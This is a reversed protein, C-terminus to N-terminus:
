ACHAAESQALLLPRVAFLDCWFRQELERGSGDGVEGPKAPGGASLYLEWARLYDAEGNLQYSHSVM